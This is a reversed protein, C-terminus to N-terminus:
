NDWTIVFNKAPDPPKPFCEYLHMNEAKIWHCHWDMYEGSLIDVSTGLPTDAYFTAYKETLFNGECDHIIVRLMVLYATEPGVNKLAGEIGYSRKGVMGLIEVDQRDITTYIGDKFAWPIGDMIVTALVKVTATKSATDTEGYATLMYTTAESPSVDRTGTASVEGIGSDIVVKVANSVNWSLTSVEGYLIEEPSATFYHITLSQTNPIEPSYPNNIKKKCSTILLFCILGLTLIKTRM